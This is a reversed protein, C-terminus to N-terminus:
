EKALALTETNDYKYIVYQDQNVRLHTPLLAHDNKHEKSM